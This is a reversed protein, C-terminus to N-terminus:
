LGSSPVLDRPVIAICSQATLSIGDLLCFGFRIVNNDPELPPRSRAQSTLVADPGDDGWEGAGIHKSLM